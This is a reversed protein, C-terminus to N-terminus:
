VSLVSKLAAAARAASFESARRRGLAIHASTDRQGDIIEGAMRVLAALDDPPAWHAAGDAVELLAAQRSAVIPTGATMAALVPLGFGEAVSASVLCAAGSLLREVVTDAVFGLARVAPAAALVESGAGVIVLTATPAAAQWARALPALRKHPRHSAVALAFRPPLDPPLPAPVAAPASPAPAAPSVIALRERASPFARAIDDAAAVTACVIRSARRLTRRMTAEWLLRAVPSRPHTRGTLDFVTAVDTAAGALTSYLPSLTARAGSARVRRRDAAVAFPRRAGGALALPTFGAAVLAPPPAHGARHAVLGRGGHETWARLIPLWFRSVGPHDDDLVRGDVLLDAGSV